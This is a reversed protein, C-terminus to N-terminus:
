DEALHFNAPGDGTLEYRRRYADGLMQHANGLRPLDYAFLQQDLCWTMFLIVLEPASRSRHNVAAIIRGLLGSEVARPDLRGAPAVLRSLRRFLATEHTRAADGGPKCAQLESLLEEIRSLEESM